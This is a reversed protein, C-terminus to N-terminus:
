KEHCDECSVFHINHVSGPNLFSTNMREVDLGCNSIAPHCTICSHDANNSHPEHCAGCSLGEHVGTPTRDDSTGVQHFAGPAHCQICLFQSPDDSYVVSENEQHMRPVPLRDARLFIKDSRIYLGFVPNRNKIALPKQVNKLSPFLENETHVQHCALCPIAPHESKKKDILEWPGQTSVPTIMDYINGEYFMGHCRFCDWYIREISNHLSNLFIDSYRTSHRGSEWKTYESQHCKACRDMVELVQNENLRIDDNWKKDTIHTFVMNTKEKLSHLGNALATGHCEFCQVERHASSQWTSVSPTIEHCSACTNKPNANNWYTYFGFFSISLVTIPIVLFILLRIM